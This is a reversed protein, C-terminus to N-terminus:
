TYYLGTYISIIPFAPLYSGFARGGEREGEGEGEGEREETNRRGDRFEGKEGRPLPFHVSQRHPDVLSRFSISDEPTYLAV